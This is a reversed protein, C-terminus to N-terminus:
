GIGNSIGEFIAKPDAIRLLLMIISYIGLFAICVSWDGWAPISALLGIFLSMSLIIWSRTVSLLISFIIFVLCLVGFWRQCYLSFRHWWTDGNDQISKVIDTLTKDNDSISTSTYLIVYAYNYMYSTYTYLYKSDKRSRYTKFVHDHGLDFFSEKNSMIYDYDRLNFAFEDGNNMISNNDYDSTDIKKILLLSGETTKGAYMYAKNDISVFHEPIDIQLNEDFTIVRAYSSQALLLATFFIFLHKM